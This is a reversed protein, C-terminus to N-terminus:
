EDEKGQEQDQWAAVVQTGCGPQSEIRLTAGIAKAREHMIGIGLHDPTIPDPDFGRGDDSICLEVGRPQCSLSVTAQSAKAHKAVNNLAEQAIRYLAIQVDPLLSCDGAITLSIPIGTRNTLAETLHGLVKALKAETLATPRLELLLTRMEALAGRTLQRLEDLSNRAEDPYREWVRPLMEAILSASFLTQSVADHLDRALRHRETAVATEEVQTRLRANEIALAAQDAFATALEIEEGSFERPEDYYLSIAGYIEDKVRLPVALLAGYRDNMATLFAQQQPEPVAKSGNLLNEFYLSTNPVAVTQRKLVAQGTMSQGVPITEELTSDAALGRAAQVRLMDDNDQLSYVVSVDSNSLWSAQAVIYTLIENLPRNSNLIALIDRLSEAVQRRQEIERTRQEVRQELENHAKQLAVEARKREITEGLREAITNLLNREEQLFPGEDKVPKEELYCVELIGVRDGHVFVDSIQKWITEKYNNTKFIQGDLRLRACTIESFRWAPPVLDIVEQLIQNLSLDKMEFVNSISYLCNLEKIREKLDQTREQLTEEIQKQETIDNGAGIVYKVSGENDLLASNSWVILRRSGDKALWHNQHENSLRGAQLERFIAKVPEVEDQPLFLDWVPKGKVEAFSYGTTQECARNFRVIRGQQDLVVVLAGTIALVAATLNREQQLTEETRKRRTIDRAIISAAIINGSVDKIPAITLSANVHHGDKRMWRTEYHDIHEGRKIREIFQPIENPYNAPVLMSIPQDIVEQASYGFIREAAPNWSLITGDLTKGIVADDLHEMISALFLRDQEVQDHAITKTTM